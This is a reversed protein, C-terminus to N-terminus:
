MVVLINYNLCGWITCARVSYPTKTSRWRKFNTQGQASTDKEVGDVIRFSAIRTYM